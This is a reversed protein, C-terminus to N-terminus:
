NFFLASPRFTLPPSNENVILVQQYVLFLTILVLITIITLLINPCVDM